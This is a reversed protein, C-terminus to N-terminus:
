YYFEYTRSSINNVNDEIRIELSNLGSKMRKADVRHRILGNKGDYEFLVWEGNLYGNYSRIGSLNDSIKFDIYKTDKGIRKNRGIAQSVISPGENDELIHFDGLLRTSAYVHTSTRSNGVYSYRGNRKRAIFLKSPNSSEPIPFHVRMNQHLPTTIDILYSNDSNKIYTLHSNTYLSNKPISISVGDKNFRNDQNYPLYQAYDGLREQYTNGSNRVYFELVTKNNSFDSLEYRIKRIENQSFDIIGNNKYAKFDPFRNNPYKETMFFREGFKEYYKYDICANLYRTNSFSFRDVKFEWFLEDDVYLKYEYVGNRLTSGQSRDIASIGLSFEGDVTITDNNRLDFKGKTKTPNTNIGVVNYNIGFPRFRVKYIIPPTRDIVNLGFHLPNITEETRTDRIEYHLHPGGSSGTNGARGILEGKNVRIASPSPFIDFEYTQKKYQYDEIYDETAQSYSDLHMYVTTYGNPHTIYLSKGGGYAQIKIRSVYGDAPAFVREGIVGGIRIDIGSHFHNSRLEAFNGSLALSRKMPAALDINSYDQSFSPISFLFSILILSTLRIITNKM